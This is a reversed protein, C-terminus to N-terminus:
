NQLTGSISGYNREEQRKANERQKQEVDEEASKM